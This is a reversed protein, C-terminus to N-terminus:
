GPGWRAVGVHCVDEGDDARTLLAADVKTVSRVILVDTHRVDEAAIKRGAMVRVTGVCGFAEAGYQVNEDVLISLPQGAM